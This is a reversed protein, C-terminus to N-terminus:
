TITSQPAATIDIARYANLPACGGNNSILIIGWEGSYLSSKLENCTSLQSTSDPTLSTNSCTYQRGSPDVLINQAVDNACGTFQSVFTFPDSSGTNQFYSHGNQFDIGYTSCTADPNACVPPPAPGTAQAIAYPTLLSLAFLFTSTPM